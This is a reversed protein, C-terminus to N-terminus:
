IARHEAKVIGPALVRHASCRIHILGVQESRTRGRLPKRDFAYRVFLWVAALSRTSASCRTTSFFVGLLALVAVGLAASFYGSYAALVLFPVVSEFARQSSILVLRVGILSGFASAVALPVIRWRQGNLGRSYGV